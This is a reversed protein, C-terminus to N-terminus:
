HLQEYFLLYAKRDLVEDLSIPYVNSDDFHLWNGSTQRIDAVYHGDTSRAGIHSVVALLKFKRAEAHIGSAVYSPHLSLKEPYAVFKAIKNAQIDFSFRKLHFILIPPMKDIQTHKSATVEVKTKADRYNELSEPLMMHHIADELTVVQPHEIDLHLCFFPQVSLTAKANVKRVSSRLKGRFIQSIPSEAFDEGKTIVVASRNGKGVEQWEDDEEPKTAHTSAVQAGKSVLILEENMKDLLFSLFEQADEQYTHEADHRPNFTTLVPYFYGPILPSGVHIMQAKESNSFTKFERTFRAFTRLIPSEQPLDTKSLRNMLNFFPTSSLLVQLIVNMFCKNRTNVLGRAQVHISENEYMKYQGLADELSM